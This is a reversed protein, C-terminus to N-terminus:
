DFEDEVQRGLIVEIVNEYTLLGMPQFDIGEVDV